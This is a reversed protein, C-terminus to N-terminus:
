LQRHNRGQCLQEHAPQAQVPSWRHNVFILVRNKLSSATPWAGDGVATRDDSQSGKLDKPRHLVHEDVYDRIHSEFEGKGSGALRWDTKFDIHEHRYPLM